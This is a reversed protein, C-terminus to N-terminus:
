SSIVLHWTEGFGLSTFAMRLRFERLSISDTFAYCSHFSPPRWRSTYGVEVHYHAPGMRLRISAHVNPSRM